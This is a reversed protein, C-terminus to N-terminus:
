LASCMQSSPAGDEASALSPPTQGIPNRYAEAAILPCISALAVARFLTQKRAIVSASIAEAAIPAIARASASFGIIIIIAM